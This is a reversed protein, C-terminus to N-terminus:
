VGAEVRAPTLGVLRESVEWLREALARDRVAPNPQTIRGDPGLLRGTVGDLDPDAAARVSSAAGKEPSSQMARGLLNFLWYPGLQRTQATRVWGPDVANVCLWGRDVRRALEVTFLVIALKSQDYARLRGYRRKLSLDDIHIRGRTQAVSSVNVVRGPRERGLTPLLLRTLLYPALYNIALCREVGDATVSRRGPFIGANNVLVDLSSYRDGLERALARVEDQSALDAEVPTVERETEAGIRAAGRRLPDGRRAVAVLDYGRQALQRATEFGIGHSAGTVVAVPAPGPKSESMFRM